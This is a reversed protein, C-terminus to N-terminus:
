TLARQQRTVYELAIGITLTMVACAIYYQKDLLLSPYGPSFAARFWNIGHLLPVWSIWNRISPPMFDPVFFVGSLIMAARVFLSYVLHWVPFLPIFVANILGVGIGLTVAVLFALFANAPDWPWAEPVGYLSMGGFVIIMAFLMLGSEVAAHALVLDLPQIRPFLRANLRAGRTPISIWMFTFHYLIGTCYFVAVSKGYPATTAGLFNHILTMSYALFIPEMMALVLGGKRGFQVEAEHAIVAAM